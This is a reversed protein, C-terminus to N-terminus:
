KSLTARIMERKGPPGPLSQVEFGLSTLDRKLQGKACYTVLIGGVKMAYKIKRFYEVAWLEPQKGPAFADFYVIDFSNKELVIEQLRLKKKQFLFNDSLTIQDDFDCRHLLEFNEIIGLSRHNLHRLLDTELPFPEITLYNIKTNYKLSFQASLAANLGTGFGVEFINIHESTEKKQKIYDLGNLIFVHKSEQVAGHTSHYTEQISPIFLTHSGDETTIIKIDTM